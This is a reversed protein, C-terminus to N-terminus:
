TWLLKGLHSAQLGSTRGSDQDDAGGLSSCSSFTFPARYAPSPLPLSADFAGVLLVARPVCVGGLAPLIRLPQSGPGGGLHTHFILLGPFRM